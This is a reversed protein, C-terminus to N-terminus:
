DHACGQEIGSPASEGQANYAAVVFYTMIGPATALVARPAFVVTKVGSEPEADMDEAAYINYGSAGPVDDWTLVIQKAGSHATVNEPTDPTVDRASNGAANRESNFESADRSAASNSSKKSM